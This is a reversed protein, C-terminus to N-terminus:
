KEEKGTKTEPNREATVTTATSYIDATSTGKATTTAAEQNGPWWLQNIM